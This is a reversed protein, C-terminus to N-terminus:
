KITISLPVLMRTGDSGCVRIDEFFIKDGQKLKKIRGKMASTFVSSGSKLEYIKSNTKVAMSFSHVKFGSLNCVLSDVKLIDEKEIMGHHEGQLLIRPKKRISAIREDYDIVKDSKYKITAQMYESVTWTTVVDTPMTTYRATDKLHSNLIKNILNKDGKKNVIGSFVSCRIAANSHDIYKALTDVPCAKMLLYYSEETDDNWIVTGNNKSQETLINTEFIRFLSDLKNEQGFCIQALLIM